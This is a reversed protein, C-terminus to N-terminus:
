PRNRVKLRSRVYPAALIGTIFESVRDYNSFGSRPLRGPPYFGPRRPRSAIPFRTRVACSTVRVTDAVNIISYRTGNIITRETPKERIGYVHRGINRVYM